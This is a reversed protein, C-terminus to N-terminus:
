CPCLYKAQRNGARATASTNATDMNKAAPRRPHALVKQSTTATRGRGSLPQGSQDLDVARHRSPHTRRRLERGTWEDIPRGSQDAPECAVALVQTVQEATFKGSSGSRPADGLVEEIVRRLAAQSERCEVAVLADFSQKWRRRWLGVQRRQLGIADAIVRNFMGDFALVILRTRQVLRQPATTSRVIQQLIAHQKETLRIKAAKGSM